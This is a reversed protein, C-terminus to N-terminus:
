FSYKDTGHDTGGKTARIPLRLNIQTGSFFPTASAHAQEGLYDNTHDFVVKGKGSRICMEGGLENITRRTLYLGLGRGEEKKSSVSPECSRKIAEVSDTAETSKYGLSAPIGIGLDMVAIEMHTRASCFSVYGEGPKRGRQSHELINQALELGVTLFRSTFALRSLLPRDKRYERMAALSYALPQESRNLLAFLDERSRVAGMAYSRPYTEQDECDEREGYPDPPPVLREMVLLKEFGGCRFDVAFQGTEPIQLDVTADFSNRLQRVLLVLGLCGYNDAEQVRTADVTFADIDPSRRGLSIYEDRIPDLAAAIHDDFAKADLRRNATTCDVTFQRPPRSSIDIICDVVCM